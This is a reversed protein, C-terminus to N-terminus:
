DAAGSGLLAIENLNSPQSRAGFSVRGFAPPSKTQTSVEYLSPLRPLPQFSSSRTGYRKVTAIAASLMSAPTGPESTIESGSTLASSDAALPQTTLEPGFVENDGPMPPM